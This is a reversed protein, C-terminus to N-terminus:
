LPMLNPSSDDQPGDHEYSRVGFGLVAAGQLAYLGRRSLTRFLSAGLTNVAGIRDPIHPSIPKSPTKKSGYPTTIRVSRVRVYSYSSSTILENGARCRLQLLKLKLSRPVCSGHLVYVETRIIDVARRLADPIRLGLEHDSM